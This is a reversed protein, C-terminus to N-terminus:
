RQQMSFRCTVNCSNCETSCPEVHISLDVNMLRDKIDSELHDCMTHAEELSVRNPMVLHLEIFRKSGAKRTRLEHFGVLSGTHEDIVSAIAAEEEAPLRTDLLGKYSKRTIDYAAKIIMLAVLLATIPDFISLGTIRVLALGLFVGAMTLVDTSLHKADAELALSDTLKATRFLFRSVLINVAISLAMIALGIEVTELKASVLIRHIAESIIIGAALFILIGETVGSVNEAKGHGFPHDDDAVKDSLRVSFFAIVAAALDMSSHVAEAILSVSGTLVGAVVKLLILFTNSAVSLSAARTKKNM